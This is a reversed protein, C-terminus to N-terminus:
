GQWGEGLGCGVKGGERIGAGLEPREPAVGHALKGVDSNCNWLARHGM